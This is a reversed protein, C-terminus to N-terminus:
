HESQPPEVSVVEGPVPLAAAAAAAEETQLHRFFAEAEMKQGRITNLNQTMQEVSIALEAIRKILVTKMDM